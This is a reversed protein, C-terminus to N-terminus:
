ASLEFKPEISASFTTPVWGAAVEVNVAVRLATRETFAYYHRSNSNLQEPQSTEVECSERRPGACLKDYELRQVNRIVGFASQENSYVRSRVQSATTRQEDVHVDV